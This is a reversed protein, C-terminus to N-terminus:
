SDFGFVMRTDPGHEDRLRKIEDFFYDLGDDSYWQIGVHTVNSDLLKEQITHSGREAKVIDRGDIRGSWSDPNSRGDWTEYWARDVYGVRHIKNPRKYALIEDLSLFSHSHDGMWTEYRGREKLDEDAYKQRWGTIAEKVTPHNDDEVIFDNPLGRLESIPTIPTYTPVGAFGYGNRVNALVSFLLYHRDQNWKSPIDIWEGDVQKQFVAHIDTGM